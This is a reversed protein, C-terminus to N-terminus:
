SPYAEVTAIKHRINMNKALESYRKGTNLDVFLEDLKTLGPYPILTYITNDSDKVGDVFLPIEELVYEALRNIETDPMQSIKDARDPRGSKVIDIVEDHFEPNSKFENRVLELRQKYNNFKTVDDWRVVSVREQDNTSLNQILAKVEGYKEDGVVLARRRASKPNRHDLVELNIAHISDAIVVLVKNKTHELAWEIYQKINEQTFYKNGLSVGIWINHEKSKIEESTIGLCDKIKM